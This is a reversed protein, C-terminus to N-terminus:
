AHKIFSHAYREPTERGDWVVRVCHDNSDRGFGAVDGRRDATVSPRTGLRLLGLDSFKVRDGVDFRETPGDAWDCEERHADMEERGRDTDWMEIGCSECEVTERIKSVPM